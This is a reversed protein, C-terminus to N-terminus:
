PINKYNITHTASNVGKSKIWSLVEQKVLDINKSKVEVTLTLEKSYYVTFDNNIYPLYQNLPFYQQTIKKDQEVVYSSSSQPTNTSTTFSWVYVPRNNSDNVTLLYQTNPMLGAYVQATMTTAPFTNTFKWYQPLTPVINLSFSKNSTIPVSTTFSIVIEGTDVASQGNAPDTKIVAFPQQQIFPTISPGPTLQSLSVPQQNTASLQFLLLFIFLVFILVLMIILFLLKRKLFSLKITQFFM